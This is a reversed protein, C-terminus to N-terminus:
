SADLDSPSNVNRLFALEPDIGRLAAEPIETVRLGAFFGVMKHHRDDLAREIAAVCSSAYRAHLPEPRGGVVPIAVDADPDTTMVLRIAEESLSPMDCACLFLRHNRAARLAAHLGGLPGCGPREDGVIPLGFRGYPLPDNAVLLVEDFLPRLVDLQRDIIARGGVEVLGKAVGGM